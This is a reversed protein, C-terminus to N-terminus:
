KDNIGVNQDELSRRVDMDNKFLKGSEAHRFNFDCNEVLNKYAASDFNM